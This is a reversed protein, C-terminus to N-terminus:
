DQKFIILFNAYDRILQKPIRYYSQYLNFLDVSQHRYIFFYVRVNDQKETAADDFIMISNQLADTPPPVISNNNFSFYGIHTESLLQDLFQYKLQCLTKSFVYVNEFNLDHPSFLLNFLVNEKGFNSLGCIIGRRFSLLFPGLQKAGTIKGNRRRKHSETAQSIERILGNQGNLDKYVGSKASFWDTHYLPGNWFCM